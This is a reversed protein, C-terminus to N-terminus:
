APVFTTSNPWSTYTPPCTTASRSRPCSPLQDAFADLLLRNHSWGIQAVVPPVKEPETWLSALRRMYFLNRRSFGRAGGMDATLDESIRGVVDDGWGSAQQQDLIDRGISWYLMVLERNVTQAARAQSERVRRKLREILGRYDASAAVTAAVEV